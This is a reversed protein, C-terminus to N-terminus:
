AVYLVCADCLPPIALFCLEPSNNWSSACGRRGKMWVLGKPTFLLEAAGFGYQDAACAAGGLVALAKGPPLVLM